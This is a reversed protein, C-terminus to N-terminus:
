RKSGLASSLISSIPQGDTNPMELGLLHAMTPALDITRVSDVRAGRRIGYGWAVFIAHMEPDSALYGHSGTQETLTRVADGEHAGVFSYGDEASLVLDAMRTNKEPSPLGLSSFEQSGIVRDVGEMRGLLDRLKPILTRKVAPNLVYVMATGGEPIVWADGSANGGEIKLLGETRLLANPALHKKVPKFGHDSVVLITARDRLGAKELSRLLDGLRADALALASNGGLTRPGYRHHSSDTNLLHFLLLNPRYKEIMFSGAQTWVLDRWTINGKGFEAIDGASVLGAEVMERPITETVTPREAFSWTITGPNQIAVWDVQATTLGAKHAIDYITPAQVMEAKDRWPEVRPVEREPGRLLLGNYLVSHKAPEVGTVMSTHNPWTVTPNVPILREASAGEAMFKRLNPVPLKPDQLMYAPFGDISVLVVIRDKAPVNQGLCLTSLLLSFLIFLRCM